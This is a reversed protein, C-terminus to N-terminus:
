AWRTTTPCAPSPLVTRPSATGSRARWRAPRAASAVGLHRHLVGDAAAHGATATWETLIRGAPGQAPRADRDARRGGDGNRERRSPSGPGSGTSGAVLRPVRGPGRPAPWARAPHRLPSRRPRAPHAREPGASIEVLDNASDGTSFGNSGWHYPLGIQHLRRGQVTLPRMRETVLVRAEVVNRATVITAWGLHDLSREAALEPSVECFFEPQLESLYPLWRSMGGATHHETLRYTTAVYPFVESGPAGGSPAFRNDPHAFAKVQRVPNRQQAYLANSVPSEQPEYHAPLPGDLLGAPAYLWAKGDSQMIFPDDGPSLRRWAQDDDDSAARLGAGEDPVFTRPTTTGPGSERSEADWWVLAKRDSWPRGDPDASARNYLIRRNAPWAWGWGAAIWNQESGPKRRAAQNVGDAYVGCHIWCGIWAAPPATTRRLSAHLSPSRGATPRGLRQGGPWCRRPAVARGHAGVFRSHTGPSISCRGTWRTRPAVWPLGRAEVRILRGLHYTFWHLESRATTM